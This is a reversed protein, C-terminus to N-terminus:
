SAIRVEKKATRERDWLKKVALRIQEARENKKIAQYRCGPIGAVILEVCASRLFSPYHLVVIAAWLRSCLCPFLPSICVYRALRERTARNAKSFYQETDFTVEFAVGIPMKVPGIGPIIVHTRRFERRRADSDMSGSDVSEDDSGNDPKYVASEDFGEEDSSSM